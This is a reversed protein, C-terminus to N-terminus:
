PGFLVEKIDRQPHCNYLTVSLGCTTVCHGARLAQVHKVCATGGAAPGRLKRVLLLQEALEPSAPDCTSRRHLDGSAWHTM